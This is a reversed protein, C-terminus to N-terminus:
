NEMRVMIYKMRSTLNHMGVNKTDVYELQLYGECWYIKHMNCKEVNRVFHMRISIHRTQKIYKGNSSMCISSKSYFLIM